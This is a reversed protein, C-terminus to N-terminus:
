NLHQISANMKAKNQIVSWTYCEPLDIRRAFDADNRFQFSSLEGVHVFLNRRYELRDTMVPFWDEFILWDPPTKALKELFYSKLFSVMKSQLVIGNMGYSFTLTQWDSRPRCEKTGQLAKMVAAFAGPCPFFDDEVIMVFESQQSCHDLINLIDWTQKRVSHGPLGNQNVTDDPEFETHDVFPINQRIFHLAGEGM